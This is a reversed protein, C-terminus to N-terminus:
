EETFNEDWHDIGTESIYIAKLEAMIHPLSSKLCGIHIHEPIPMQLAHILNDLRDVIEGIKEIGEM